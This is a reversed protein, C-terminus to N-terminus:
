ENYAKVLAGKTSRSPLREIAQGVINFIAQHDDENRADFNSYDSTQKIM